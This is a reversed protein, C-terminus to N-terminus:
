LTTTFPEALLLGSAIWFAIDEQVSKENTTGCLSTGIIKEPLSESSPGDTAPVTFRWSKM